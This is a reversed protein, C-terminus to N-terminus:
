CGTGLENIETQSLGVQDFHDPCGSCSEGRAVNVRQVHGTTKKNPSLQCRPLCFEKTLNSQALFRFTTSVSIKKNVNPRDLLSDPDRLCDRGLLKWRGARLLHQVNAGFPNPQSERFTPLRKLPPLKLFSQHMHPSVRRRYIDTTGGVPM